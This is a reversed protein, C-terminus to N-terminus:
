EYRKARLQEAEAEAKWQKMAPHNLLLTVYDKEPGTLPVNYTAFRFAVPAYMADAISFAGLLYPGGSRALAARFLERIRAIDKEADVPIAFNPFKEHAKMPLKQRLAQFGSHMEAALSRAYARDGANWPWMKKDPFTEALYECIALSDWILRSGDVLV